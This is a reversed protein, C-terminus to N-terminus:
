AGVLRKVLEPSNNQPKNVVASVQYAEYGQEDHPRLLDILQHGDVEPNLWREFDGPDIIVPMRDHIPKMMANGGTVIIAASDIVQGANEWHDWVGALAFPHGDARHVFFPQKPIAQRWEYFGDVPILCRRRKFAERFAPKAAVTEARANFANYGTKPDKAWFPVLGWRLQVLEREQVQRCITILQSPCLNYTPPVPGCPVALLADAYATSSSCQVIRGCM